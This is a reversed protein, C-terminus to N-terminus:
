ICSFICICFSSYDDNLIIQKCIQPSPQLLPHPFLPRNRIKYNPWVHKRMLGRRIQSIILPVIYSLQRGQLQSEVKFDLDPMESFSFAWLAYPHRTLMVRVKGILHTLKFSLQAYGAVVLNADVAM